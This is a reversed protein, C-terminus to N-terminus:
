IPSVGDFVLDTIRRSATEVDLQGTFGTFMGAILPSGLVVALLDEDVDVRIEGSEKGRRIVSRMASTRPVVVAGRYQEFLEPYTQSEANIAREWGRLRQDAVREATSELLRSLNDRASHESIDILPVDLSKTVDSYLEEKTKWRRYLSNRSVGAHQAITVLSLSSLTAGDAIL